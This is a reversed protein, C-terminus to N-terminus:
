FVICMISSLVEYTTSIAIKLVDFDFIPVYLRILIIIISLFDQFNLLLYRM